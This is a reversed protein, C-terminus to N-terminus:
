PLPSTNALYGIRVVCATPCDYPADRVCREREALVRARDRQASITMSPVPLPGITAPLMTFHHIQIGIKRSAVSSDAAITGAYRGEKIKGRRSSACVRTSGESPDSQDRLSCAYTPHTIIPDAVRHPQSSRRCGCSWPSMPRRNSKRARFFRDTGVLVCGIIRGVTEVCGPPAM